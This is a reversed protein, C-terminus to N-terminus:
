SKVSLYNKLEEPLINKKWKATGVCIHVTKVSALINEYENKILYSIEFSSTKLQTVKIEVFIKDKFKIPLDYNAECHIIPFALNKDSFYDFSLNFSLIFSEFAQHCIKLINAYFMIGAPDCDYFNIVSNFLFM